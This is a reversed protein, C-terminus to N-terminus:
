KKSMNRYNNKVSGNWSAKIGDLKESKVYYRIRSFLPIWAAEDQIITKELDRYEKIREDKDTIARADTVRKMIDERPYCLSRFTTNEKNGFFTYIFNDPDNFDATWTAEYCSLQGGKRLTMWESDDIVEVTAKVGIKEWMSAVSEMMSKEWEAVSSKVSITMEFGDGYGADALLAAAADPDYAIEPLDENYGSLGHPFIGQEIEGRGNRSSDLLAQRDLAMQLAKRVAVNNLPDISENLAIYTIGVPHARFLRDKYSSDNLYKDADSGLGDLDLIDLEGKEFLAEIDEAESLFRLDLGECKPAGNWCNKNAKLLMGEGKNWKWLVFSGTGVTWEPETGFRDGAEITTAEDMISAGPMSLCPLFAAFPEELTISFDLDGLIKFGELQDTEGAELKAAGAINDIIDQNCSDPHTLLRTFSYLVDSATLPSGNSFTVGERLHFTYTMGDDSVEWDKALSPLVVASGHANNEMEVLRNFVNQAVTYHISTCQFDVTDPEEEVAVVFKSVDPEANADNGKGIGNSAAKCGSLLSAMLFIATLLYVPKMIKHKTM